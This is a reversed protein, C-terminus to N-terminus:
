IEAGLIVGFSRQWRWVPGACRKMNYLAVRNAGIGPPGTCSHIVSQGWTVARLAAGLESPCAVHMKERKKSGKIM